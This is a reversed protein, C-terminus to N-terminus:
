GSRHGLDLTPPQGAVAQVAPSYSEDVDAIAVAGSLAGLIASPTLSVGVGPASPPEGLGVTLTWVPPSSRLEVLGRLAGVSLTLGQTPTADRALDVHM